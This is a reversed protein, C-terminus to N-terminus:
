GLLSFMAMLTVSSALSTAFVLKSALKADCGYSSALVVTLLASPMAAELVLIQIQTDSMSLGVAPLWVIFPKLILKITIVLAALGVLSRIGEFHLLLGVTMAVVFTNASGLVGIAQFLPGLYSGNTPLRLVSWFLGLVVAVFIPSRFFKLAEVMRAGADKANSGYYLAIMTGLTFLAPGVGLESIIVAEAIAQSDAGYVETILAYGLLSSSGFGAVLMVAGLQPPALALRRGALWALALSAVEAGLMVLALVAYEWHLISRALSVFILAPLTVHTVLTAFLPGQAEKVLGLRRLGMALLILGVLVLVSTFVRAQIDM